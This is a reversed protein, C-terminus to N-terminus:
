SADQSDRRLPIANHRSSLVCCASLSPFWHWSAWCKGSAENTIDNVLRPECYYGTTTAAAATCNVDCVSVPGHCLSACITERTNRCGHLRRTGVESTPRRASVTGKRDSSDFQPVTLPSLPRAPVPSTDSSYLRGASTM